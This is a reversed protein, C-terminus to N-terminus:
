CTAMCTCARDKGLTLSLDGFAKGVNMFGVQEYSCVKYVCPIEEAEEEDGEGEGEETVCYLSASDPDYKKKIDRPQNPKHEDESEGDVHEDHVKKICGKPGLAYRIDRPPRGNKCCLFIRKEIFFEELEAKLFTFKQFKRFRVDVQGQVIVYFEDGM